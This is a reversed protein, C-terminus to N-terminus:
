VELRGPSARDILLPLSKSSLPIINPDLHVHVGDPANPDALALCWRALDRLGAVDGSVVVGDGELDVTVYGGEAPPAVGKSPDYPPVVLFNATSQPASGDSIASAEPRLDERAAEVLDAYETLFPEVLTSELDGSLHWLAVREAPDVIDYHDLNEHDERDENRHLWEFLVLAEAKTLRLTVLDDPSSEVAGYHGIASSPSAREIPCSPLGLARPSGGCSRRGDCRDHVIRVHRLQPSEFM